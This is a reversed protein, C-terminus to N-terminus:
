NDAPESAVSNRGHHLGNRERPSDAGQWPAGGSHKEHNKTKSNNTSSVPPAGFLNGGTKLHTDIIEINTYVNIQGMHRCFQETKGATGM